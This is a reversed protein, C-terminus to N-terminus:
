KRLAACPDTREARPGISRADYPAVDADGQEVYGIAAMDSPAVGAARLYRPVGLDTRVHGNGAILVVREGAPAQLMAQALAADRARQALVMSGIQSAPLMHCHGVDVLRRLAQEDAASWAADARLASRVDAPAAEIGGRVIARVDERDLNGGAISAGGQVAAEVLPKHLPWRWGERDLRGADAIAEADRPAAALAADRTRAMQEFVVRTPKGDGLLERLLAARQRHQEANDHVEGLLVFRKGRLQAVDPPAVACGLTAGALCLAALRLARVARHAHM